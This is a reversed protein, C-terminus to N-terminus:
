TRRAHEMDITRLIPVGADRTLYGIAGSSDRTYM